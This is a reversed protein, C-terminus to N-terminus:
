HRTVMAAFKVFTSANSGTIRLKLPDNLQGPRDLSIVDTPTWHYQLRTFQPDTLYRCRRM